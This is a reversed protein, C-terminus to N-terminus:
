HERDVVEDQAKNEENCTMDSNQKHNPIREFPHTRRAMLLALPAHGISALIANSQLVLSQFVM